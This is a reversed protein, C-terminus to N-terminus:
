CLTNQTQSLYSLNKFLPTVLVKSGFLHLEDINDSLSVVFHKAMAFILHLAFDYLAGNKEIM